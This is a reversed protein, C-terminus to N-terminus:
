RAWACAVHDINVQELTTGSDRQFEIFPQLRNTIAWAAASTQGVGRWGSGDALDVYYLIQTDDTGDILYKHVVNDVYDLTSDQDDTDTTGDDSEYTINLNAGELRFWANSVINDLTANRASAMGFVLREVSTPTAGAINFGIACEFIWGQTAPITLQDAFYLTINQAESTADTALRYLGNRANAVYDLTPTGAASTDQKGWPAPLTAGATPLFEEYFSCYNTRLVGKAFEAFGSYHNPDQHREFAADLRHARNAM